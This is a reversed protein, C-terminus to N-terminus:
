EFRLLIIEYHGAVVLHKGDPTPACFIPHWSDSDPITVGDPVVLPEFAVSREAVPETGIQIKKRGWKIQGNIGHTGWLYGNWVCYGFPPPLGQWIRVFNISELDLTSLYGLSSLLVNRHDFFSHLSHPRNGIQVFTGDKQIIWLGPFGDDVALLIRERKTDVLSTYNFLRRGDIFPTKGEKARSSSLQEWQRTKLNIRIIWDSALVAYCWDGLTGLIGITTSPLGDEMTLKWPESGDLPIMRLEDTPGYGTGLYINTDDVHLLMSFGSPSIRSFIYRKELTALDVYAVYYEQTQAKRVETYLVNNHIIIKGHGGDGRLTSMTTREYGEKKPFLNMESKWPREPTVVIEAIKPIKPTGGIGANTAQQRLSRVYTEPFGLREALEIQRLLLSNYQQKENLLTDTNTTWWIYYSVADRAFEDRSDALAIIEALFGIESLDLIDQHSDSIDRMRLIQEMEVYLAANDYYTRGKPLGTLYSKVQEIYAKRANATRHADTPRNRAIWAHHQPITRSDQEMLALTREIAEGAENDSGVTRVYIAFTAFNELAESFFQIDNSVIRGTEDQVRTRRPTSLDGVELGYKQSLRLLDEVFIAYIHATDASAQLRGFSRPHNYLLYERFTEQDVVRGAHTQYHELVLDRQRRNLRRVEEKFEPQVHEALITLLRIHPESMRISGLRHDLPLSDLLEEIRWAEQIAQRMEEADLRNVRLTWDYTPLNNPGSINSNLRERLLSGLESRYDLNESDLAVAVEFKEIAESRNILNRLFRAEAAFREAEAKRAADTDQAHAPVCFLVAVVILCALRTMIM